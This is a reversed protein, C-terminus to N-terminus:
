RIFTPEQIPLLFPTHTHAHTSHIPSLFIFFLYHTASCCADVVLMMVLPPPFYFYLFIFYFLISGSLLFGRMAIRSVIIDREKKEHDWDYSIIAKWDVSQTDQLVAPLVTPYSAVEDGTM